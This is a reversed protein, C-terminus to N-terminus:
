VMRRRGAEKKLALKVILRGDFALDVLHNGERLNAWWLGTHVEDRGWFLEVDHLWVLVVVFNNIVSSYFFIVQINRFSSEFGPNYSTLRESCLKATIYLL